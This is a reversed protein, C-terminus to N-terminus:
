AAVGAALAVLTVEIEDSDLVWVPPLHIVVQDRYAECFDLARQEDSGCHHALIALSLQLACDPHRWGLHDAHRALDHRPCLPRNNATVTGPVDHGHIGHYITM